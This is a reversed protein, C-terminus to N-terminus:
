KLVVKNLYQSFLKPDAAPFTVQSWQGLEKLVGILSEPHSYLLHGAKKMTSALELQHNNMLSDNIVVILMKNKRLVELTTGAGAHAIVLDAEVIEKEISNKYDFTEVSLGVRDGHCDQPLPSAGAQIILRECGIKKLAQHMEDSCVQTVLKDFRTTGVTVFVNRLKRESSPNMM